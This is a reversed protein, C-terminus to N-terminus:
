GHVPEDQPQSNELSRLAVLIREMEEFCGERKAAALAQELSEKTPTDPTTMGILKAANSRTQWRGSRSKEAAQSM